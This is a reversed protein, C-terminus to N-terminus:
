LPGQGQYPFVCLADGVPSFSFSLEIILVQLFINKKLKKLSFVNKAGFDVIQTMKRCTGHSM